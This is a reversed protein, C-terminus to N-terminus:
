ACYYPVDRRVERCAQAPGALSSTSPPPLLSSSSSSSSTRLDADSPHSSLLVPRVGMWGSILILEPAKQAAAGAAAGNVLSSAPEALYVAPSLKRFLSKAAM